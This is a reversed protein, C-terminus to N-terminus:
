CNSYGACGFDDPTPDMGCAETGPATPSPGGLFLWNFIFVGTTINLAGDDNADAADMCSPEPGGLFLFNLLFVGDTLNFDGSDNTDGRRFPADGGDACTLTHEASATDLCVGDGVQVRVVVEGPEVCRLTVTGDENDTFGVVGSVLSWDYTATAGADIGAFQATLVVDQDFGAQSPGEITVADADEECSSDLGYGLPGALFHSEIEAPTLPVNWIALEDVLGNYRIGSAPGGFAEGLGLGQGTGNNITGDYPVADVEVGNLYVRLMTGDAVGAIHQWEELVVTGGNANPLAGDTQQHFLSVANTFGAENRIAFHYSFADPPWRLVLRQWPGTLDTPYVWTEITYTAPLDVDPSDMADLWTADGAEVGIAVADGRLGPALRVLGDTAVWDDQAEGVHNPFDAAEDAGDVDFSWFSVLGEDPSVGPQDSFVTITHEATAIDGCVGDGASVRVTIVGTGQPSVTATSQDDGSLTANGGVLEWAYTATGGADVGELTATLEVDEGVQGTADGAITVADRDEVCGQSLGYGAPGAEYHSLIEEPTLPLNWIALEDVLGNYQINSPSTASDGLGLGEGTGQQITGDYPVSHVELGNLYVRLTDGDAVGAIHQWENAVVTGGDTNLITLDSQTHFLSVANVLGTNNRIAFHYSQTAGWRLLLRQWPGSLDTPYIWCEITYTPALEVDETSSATLYPPDMPDGAGIALANGVIGPVVREVGGAPFWDDNSVGANNTFNVSEDTANEDFSWYSVLGEDPSDGPGGSEFVSLAVTAAATDECLGDALTVRLVLAGAANPTVTVTAANAGVLSADGEEVSWAYSATAGDDVGEPAATLEVAEGVVAVSPGNVSVSDLDEVCGETLGYGDPGAEFHSLIEDETLPVDWIALEDVYGNYRIGSLATASDGLGLPEGASAITGDYPQADVEIGNLYVRLMTGDAVGAIHQWENVVVTGGNSNPTGGGEEGHFLSVGNIFGSNNRIAFHYSLSGGWRLVLRQWDADLETPFIWCEISYIAPLDVDDTSPADLYQADGAEVGIALADGVMGEVYRADGAQPTLHDGAVGTGNDFLQGSDQTTGDFSWYSILGEDPSDGQAALPVALALSFLVSGITQATSQM